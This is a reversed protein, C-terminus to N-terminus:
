PRETSATEPPAMSAEETASSSSVGGSFQM